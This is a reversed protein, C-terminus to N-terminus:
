QLEEDVYGMDFDTETAAHLYMGTKGSDKKKVFYRIKDKYTLGKIKQRVIGQQFTGNKAGLRLEPSYICYLHERARTVATYLLERNLMVNHASHLILYVKRWESGQSKHVSVCYGFATKNIDGATSLEAKWGTDVYQIHLIHSAQNTKDELEDLFIPNLDHHMEDPNIFEEQKGDVKLEFHGFRNIQNSAPRVAKGIFKANHVIETIIAEKKDFIIKDGVSYYYLEFGARIEHVLEGSIDTYAQAMKQNLYITGLQKNFPCLVIDTEHNFEGNKVLNYCFGGAAIMAQDNDLQKKWPHLTLRGEEQLSEVEKNSLAKGALIKYALRIIPSDLAQRYVHTLEVVPLEALKYGLIGDGYVPPLQNLDGLYIFTAYPCAEKLQKHLELSCMSSEDIVVIKLNIPNERNRQPLFRMTEKVEENEEDVIEIRTPAFELLKHITHCNNQFRSSLAKKLNLVARNTFSVFAVAYSGEPLTKTSNRLKGVIGENVLVNALERVTTTKGTGAAGILCFDVKKRAYDLALLQKENLEIGKPKIGALIDLKEDLIDAVKVTEKNFTPTEGAKKRQAILRQLTLDM